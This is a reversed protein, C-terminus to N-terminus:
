PRDKIEKLKHFDGMNRNFTAEYPKDVLLRKAEQWLEEKEALSLGDFSLGRKRSIEEMSVFRDRFRASAQRLAGDADTGLWRGVNVIAFLVDGLEEVMKHVDEQEIAELLEYCEELFDHGMSQHTQERDWPCGDPSRLTQM